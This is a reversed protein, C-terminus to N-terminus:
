HIGRAIRVAASCIEKRTADKGITDLAGAALAQARTLDDMGASIVLARTRLQSARDRMRACVEIGDVDPMRVDLVAIDPEFEEIAALGALGCDCECVLRLEDHARIARAIGERYPASDDVLVVTFQHMSVADM